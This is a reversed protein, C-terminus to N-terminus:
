PLATTSPRSPHLPAQNFRVAAPAVGLKAVAPQRSERRAATVSFNQGRSDGRTRLDATLKPPWPKRCQKGTLGLGEGGSPLPQVVRVELSLRTALEEEGVQEDKDAMSKYNGNDEVLM